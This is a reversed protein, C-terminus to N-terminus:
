LTQILLRNALLKLPSTSGELGSAIGGGGGERWARQEGCWSSQSLSCCVSSSSWSLLWSIVEEVVQPLKQSFRDRKWQSTYIMDWTGNISHINILNWNRIVLINNTHKQTYLLTQKTLTWYCTLKMLILNRLLQIHHLLEIFHRVKSRQDLVILLWTIDSGMIVYHSWVWKWLM